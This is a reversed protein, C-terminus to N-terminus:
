AENLQECDELYTIGDVREVLEGNVYRDYGVPIIEHDDGGGILRSLALTRAIWDYAPYNHLPGWRLVPDSAPSEPRVFPRPCGLM